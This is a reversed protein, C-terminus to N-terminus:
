FMSLQEGPDPKAPAGDGSPVHHPHKIYDPLKKFDEELTRRLSHQHLAAAPHYMPVVILDGFRRAKGHINTIKEKPFWRAMAYRSITVIVQPQILEIQKDLWVRCAEIEDPLPDRNQPPRSKVVNTIFIDKRELGISQLLENLFNGSAGVFPRGQQDEYFGPAEGIMMIQAHAPGEGPVAQTRSQALRCRTCAKIQAALDNLNNALDLMPNDESPRRAKRLKRRLRRARAYDAGASPEPPPPEMRARAGSRSRPTVRPTAKRRAMKANRPPTRKHELM